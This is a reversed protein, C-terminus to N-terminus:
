KELTPFKADREAIIPNEIPWTIGITSDNWIIGREHEPSYESSCNYMLKTDDELACFGHAFGEPIYIMNKRDASLTVSVWRGFTPSDQRIDVAVDFASGTLVQVLKGQGAPSEQYHLGRLVGKKSISYNAQVFNVDIGAKAFDSHKYLEAFEGREDPFSKPQILVVGSLVTEIFEFPM